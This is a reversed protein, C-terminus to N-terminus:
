TLPTQPPPPTQPTQPTQPARPPPRLAHRDREAVVEELRGVRAERARARSRWVGLRIALPVGALLLGAGFSALILTALPVAEVRWFLFRVTAPDLNQLAFVAVSAALVAVVIYGLGM